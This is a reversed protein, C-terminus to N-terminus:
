DEHQKRRREIDGVLLYPLWIGAVERLQGKRASVMGGGEDLTWPSSWLLGQSKKERRRRQFILRVDGAKDLL